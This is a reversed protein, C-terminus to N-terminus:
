LETDKEWADDARVGLLERDALLTAELEETNKRVANVYEEENRISSLYKLRKEDEIFFTKAWRTAEHARYGLFRMADVGLRLSTDLTERYIHLMGANMLDYADYRNTSRVLMRLDPFHKKITEIMELRKAEDSIAIIILKAKHAGAIELLDHRSADGYYVKFGMRRLRDVNDSDIDLVTTGINTANLFRGITSGFHGYGAIIVQNEEEQVDHPREDVPASGKCIRPQILKDDVMMVLPTLAMSIAVVAIMSDIIEKSLIGEDASFGFLV